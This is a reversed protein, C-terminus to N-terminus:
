INAQKYMLDLFNIDHGESRILKINLHHPNDAAGIALTTQKRKSKHTTIINDVPPCNSFQKLAESFM